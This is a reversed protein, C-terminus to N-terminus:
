AGFGGGPMGYTAGANMGANMAPNTAPNTINQNISNMMAINQTQLNLLVMQNIQNIQLQDQHVHHQHHHHLAQQQGAQMARLEEPTPPPTRSNQYETRTNERFWSYDAAKENELIRDSFLQLYHQCNNTMRSYDWNDGVQHAISQLEEQTRRTWGILCVYHGDYEPFKVKELAANRREADLPCSAINVYYAKTTNNQRLEYKVDDIILIWHKFRGRQIHRSFWVKSGRTGDQEQEVRLSIQSSLHRWWEEQLPGRPAGLAQYQQKRRWRRNYFFAFVAFVAFIPIVIAIFTTINFGDM